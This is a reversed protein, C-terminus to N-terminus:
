PQASTAATSGILTMKLHTESMPGFQGTRRLCSGSSLPLVHSSSTRCVRDPASRRLARCSLQKKEQCLSVHIDAFQVSTSHEPLSFDDVLLAHDEGFPSHKRSRAGRHAAVDLDPVM